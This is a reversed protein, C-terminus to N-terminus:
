RHESGEGDSSSSSSLYSSPGYAPDSEYLISEDDDGAIDAESKELDNAAHHDEHIAADPQGITGELSAKSKAISWHHLSHRGAREPGILSHM